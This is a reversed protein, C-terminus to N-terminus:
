LSATLLLLPFSQGYPCVKTPYGIKQIINHVKDIALETVNKEMWETAKLKEIFLSKIDSVIQDGFAKAKASFAKEV